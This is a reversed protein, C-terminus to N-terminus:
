VYMFKIILRQFCIFTNPNTWANYKPWYQKEFYKGPFVDMLNMRYKYANVKDDISIQLFTIVWKNM